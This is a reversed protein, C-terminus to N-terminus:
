RRAEEDAQNIVKFGQPTVKIVRDALALSAPRHTIIIVTRETLLDACSQIFATEGDLDFMSTAEDFIYIPPDRFLARALALRQRQGGSLRVGGDGVETALGRPLHEIFEWAQALRAANEIEAPDPDPCGFAINEAVSGYALLPRQPVYGFQRRLDQVQLDAIDVGDLTIRGQDPQYFRLILNVLTSKGIGNDGTLAITEGRAIALSANTLVAPRGPYAFSVADIAIAGQARGIRRKRDYGPEPQMAFVAELRALTGKAIQFRGYTDALSGIPRTLLAAYFLFAFMEGPNRAGDQVQASGIVLIIIAAIAAVLAVIPGIFATIRTQKLKLLRAKEIAAAYRSRHEGEVAFAKIAPLMDIDSEAMWVIDVEARRVQRGLVRLRRGVWKMAIFFPPILIPITFTLVPDIIFLIIFAGVATMAMSPVRALTATLFTSLNEVEHSMLSLLDGGRSRDHFAMPMAVIREHTEMRLNALIRGSARESLIAVMITTGALGTLAIALLILTQDLNISTEGVMGAALQAALWPLALTVVSSALSLGGILALEGRFRSTWHQLFALRM